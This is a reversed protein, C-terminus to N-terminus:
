EGAVRMKSAAPAAIPRFTLVLATMALVAVATISLISPKKM